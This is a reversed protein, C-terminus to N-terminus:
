NRENAITADRAGRDEIIYPRLIQDIVRVVGAEITDRETVFWFISSGTTAYLVLEAITEPDTQASLEGAAVADQVLRIVESTFLGIHQKYWNRLEADDRAEALLSLRQIQNGDGVLEEEREAAPIAFRQRLAQLPSQSDNRAQAFREMDRNIAWETYAILLGKRNGFRANLAQGTCGLERAVAALTLESAGRTALVQNTALFAAEDSFSRPRGMEPRRVSATARNSGTVAEDIM